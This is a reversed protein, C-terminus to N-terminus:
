WRRSQRCSPPIHAARTSLSKTSLTMMMSRSSRDRPRRSRGPTRCATMDIIQQRAAQAFELAEEGAELAPRALRHQRPLCRTPHPSGHRCPHLRRRWLAEPLQVCGAWEDFRGHAVSHQTPRSHVTSSRVSTVASHAAPLSAASSCRHPVRKRTVVPCGARKLGVQHDVRAAHMRRATSRNRCNSRSTGSSSTISPSLPSAGTTRAPPGRVRPQGFPPPLARKEPEAVGSRGYKM